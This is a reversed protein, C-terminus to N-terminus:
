KHSYWFKYLAKQGDIKLLCIVGYKGKKHFKLNAAFIGGYNTVSAVQEKKDPGIIKIKGTAEKIQHNMSDHFIKLMIHHTSGDEAKTGMQALSMIEFEARIGKDLGTHKFNKNTDQKNDSKSMDMQSHDTHDTGALVVGTMGIGIALIITIITITIKM